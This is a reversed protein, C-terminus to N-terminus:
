NGALLLLLHQAHFCYLSDASDFAVVLYHTCSSMTFQSPKAHGTTMQLVYVDAIAHYSSTTVHRLIETFGNGTGVGHRTVLM